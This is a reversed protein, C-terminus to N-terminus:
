VGGDVTASGGLGVYVTRAGRDVLQQVLEGVGRTTARVPDRKGPEVLSLGCVLRSEIVATQDDLWGAEAELPEGLPGTVGHYTRASLARGLAELLGDGGVSARLVRSSVGAAAIGEEMALAVETVSLTGKFAQAVALVVAQTQDRQSVQLPSM